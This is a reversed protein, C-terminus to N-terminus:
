TENRWSRVFSRERERMFTKIPVQIM